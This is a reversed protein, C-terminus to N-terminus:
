FELKFVDTDRKKFGLKQYLSQAAVRDHGSTLYMQTAGAKKSEELLKEMVKQGLGQGRYGDDVVVDEVFGTRKGFKTILYGTAMGIVKKDDKVVIFLVNKDSTIAELDDRTGLPED